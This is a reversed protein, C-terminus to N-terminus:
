SHRRRLSRLLGFLLVAGAAVDDALPLCYGWRTWVTTATLLRVSVVLTGKRDVPLEGLIRGRDDVAGTLGTIAARVLFRGNEVARLVSAAFHQPQAGARGYWSDNSITALLNAGKATEERAVADYTIEYCVGMGLRYGGGELLAPSPAASFEGIETSVQRVFFFVKPLPV